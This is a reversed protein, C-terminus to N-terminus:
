FTLLTAVKKSEAKRIHRQEARLVAIRHLEKEEETEPIVRPVPVPNNEKSLAVFTVFSTAAIRSAACSFRSLTENVIFAFFM